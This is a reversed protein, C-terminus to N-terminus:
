ALIFICSCAIHVQSIIRGTFWTKTKRDGVELQHRVRKGVLIHKEQNSERDKVVAQGVLAKLNVKMEELSLSKRSYKGEVMKTFKFTKRDDAIQLLVEKRFRMQDKLAEVKEGVTIYSELM